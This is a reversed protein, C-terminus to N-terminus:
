VGEKSLDFSASRFGAISVWEKITWKEIFAGIQQIIYTLHVKELKM